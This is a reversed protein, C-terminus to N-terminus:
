TFWFLTHTSPIVASDQVCHAMIERWTADVIRFLKGEKPIQQMIDESSFIPELYLWLAQVKVWEDIIEQVLLLREEWDQFCVCLCM